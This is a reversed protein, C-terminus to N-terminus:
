VFLLASRRAFRKRNRNSARRACAIQSVFFHLVVIDDHQRERMYVNEFVFLLLLLVAHHHQRMAICYSYIFLMNLILRCYFIFNLVVKAHM